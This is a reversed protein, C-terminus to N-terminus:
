NSEHQDHSFSNHLDIEQLILVLYLWNNVLKSVMSLLIVCVVKLSWHCLVCDLQDMACPGAPGTIAM